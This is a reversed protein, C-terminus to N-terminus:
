TLQLEYFSHPKKLLVTFQAIKPPKLWHTKKKNKTTLWGFGVKCFLHPLLFSTKLLM